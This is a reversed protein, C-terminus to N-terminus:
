FGGVLESYELVRMSGNTKMFSVVLEKELNELNKSKEFVNPPNTGPAPIVFINNASDTGPAFPAKM